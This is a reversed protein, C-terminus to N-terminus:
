SACKPDGSLPDDITGARCFIVFMPRGSERALQAATAFDYYWTIRRYSGLYDASARRVHNKHVKPNLKPASEDAKRLVGAQSPPLDAGTALSLLIFTWSFTM